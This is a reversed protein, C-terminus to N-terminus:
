KYFLSEPIDIGTKISKTELITLNQGDPLSVIASAKVLQKSDKQFQGCYTIDGERGKIIIKNGESSVEAKGMLDDPLTNRHFLSMLKGRFSTPYKNVIRNDQLHIYESGNFVISNKEADHWDVRTTVVDNKRLLFLTGNILNGSIDPCYLEEASTKISRLVFEVKVSEADSLSVVASRIVETASVPMVSKIAVGLVIAFVAAVGSVAWIISKVRRKPSLTSFTFECRRPHKPTLLEAVKDFDHDEQLNNKM